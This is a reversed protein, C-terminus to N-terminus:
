CCGHESVASLLPSLASTSSMLATAHWHTKNQLMSNLIVLLKRMCATLASKPYKGRARLQAYFNKIVPNSRVASVAAMYLVRRVQARGGWICRSGRLGGSDRSFPALGALAAIQKRNLAGLEPLHALLTTSLVKGVGPVSRLLEDRERWIPTERVLGALEDDFGALRKELWRIHEDISKHIVKPSNARRNKEATLMEVLQRRRNVLAELAQAQADPLARVQRKVAEGFRVLVQADLADTKALRGTARAFDRVQRPNVVAVGIGATALASAVPVELGGTAEIIMLDAPELLKLLASIGREDNAVAFREGKPGLAVDLQAKAVDIGVFRKADAM